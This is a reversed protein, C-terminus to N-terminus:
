RGDHTGGGAFLDWVQKREKDRQPDRCDSHALRVIAPAGPPRM